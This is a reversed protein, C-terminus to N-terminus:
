GLWRVPRAYIQPYKAQWYRAAEGIHRRMAEGAGQADAAALCELIKRHADAVAERRRRGYEVGVITGDAVSQLTEIFVHLVASGAAGAIVSHFRRNESVFVGHNDLNEVMRAISGELESLDAATIRPAALEALMPELANRAEYVDALRAQEFGLILTLAGGLDSAAPRRVVPGGRPGARITLVGRTELLRLAERLTTRGVGFEDLM